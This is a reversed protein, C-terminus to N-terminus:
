KKRHFFREEYLKDFEEKSLDSASLKSPTTGSASTPTANPKKTDEKVAKGTIKLYREYLEILPKTGFKGNAYDQFDEDKGLNVDPYKKNFKAFDENMAKQREAEATSKTKEEKVKKLYYSVPEEGKENGEKMINYTAVDEDDLIPTHTYPNEKINERVGEEYTRTKGEKERRKSAYYSNMEASQVKKSTDTKPTGVENKSSNDDGEFNPPTDENTSTNVVKNEEEM